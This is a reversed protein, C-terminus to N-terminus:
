ARDSLTLVMKTRIFASSCLNLTCINSKQMWTHLELIFLVGGRPPTSTKKKSNGATILWRGVTNHKCYNLELWANEVLSLNVTQDYYLVCLTLVNIHHIPNQHIKFKYLAIFYTSHELSIYRDWAHSKNSKPERSCKHNASWNNTDGEFLQIIFSEVM